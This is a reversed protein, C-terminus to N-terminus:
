AGLAAMGEHRTVPRLAGGIEVIYWDNRNAGRGDRQGIAVVDGVRCEIVVEGADGNRGNGTYTGRFDYEPKGGALAVVAGWPTGYRRNNFVDFFKRAKVAATTAIARGEAWAMRLAAALYQRVRGGFAAVGERALEWARIMIQKTNM